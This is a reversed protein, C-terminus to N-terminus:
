RVNQTIDSLLGLISRFDRRPLFVTLEGAAPEIGGGAPMGFGAMGTGAPTGFGLRTGAGGKADDDGAAATAAGCYASWEFGYPEM